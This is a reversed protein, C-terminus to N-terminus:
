DRKISFLFFLGVAILILSIFIDRDWLDIFEELLLILGVTILIAGFYAKRKNEKPKEEYIEDEVSLEINEEKTFILRPKEPVIIWLTIYAIFGIGYGITTIIFLARIFVPDLDFYEALGGCVGAIKKDQFSRYLKKTM